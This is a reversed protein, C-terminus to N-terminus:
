PRANNVVKSVDQKKGPVVHHGSEELARLSRRDVETAMKMPELPVSTPSDNKM